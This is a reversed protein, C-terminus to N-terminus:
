EPLGSFSGTSMSDVDLPLSLLEARSLTLSSNPQMRLLDAVARRAEDTRGLHALSAALFRRAPTFNPYEDAARSSWAVAEDFERAFFHATTLQNLDYIRASGRTSGARLHLLAPGKAWASFNYSRASTLVQASNRNLSL